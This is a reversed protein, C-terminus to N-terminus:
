RAVDEPTEEGPHKKAFDFFSNVASVKDKLKDARDLM